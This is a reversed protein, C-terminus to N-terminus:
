PAQRKWVFCRVGSGPTSEFVKVHEASNREAYCIELVDGRMSLVGEVTKWSKSGSILIFRIPGKWTRFYYSGEFLIGNGKEPRFRDKKFVVGLRGLSEPPVPVGDLTASVCRWKGQLAWEAGVDHQSRTGTTQNTFRLVRDNEDFAFYILDKESFSNPPGLPVIGFAMLLSRRTVENVEYWGLRLAPSYGSMAGLRNTLATLTTQGPVVFSANTAAANLVKRSKGLPMTVCGSFVAWAGVGGLACALLAMWLLCRQFRSVAKLSNVVGHCCRSCQSSLLNALACKCMVAIRM